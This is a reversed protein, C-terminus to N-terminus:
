MERTAIEGVGLWKVDSPGLCAEATHRVDHDVMATPILLVSLATPVDEGAGARQDELATPTAPIGAAGAPRQHLQFNPVVRPAPLWLHQWTKQFVM